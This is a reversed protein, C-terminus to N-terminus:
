TTKHQEIYKQVNLLNHHYIDHVLSEMIVNECKFFPNKPSCWCVCVCVYRNM